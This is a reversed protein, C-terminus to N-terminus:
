CTVSENVVQFLFFLQMIMWIIFEQISLTINVAVNNVIQCQFFHYSQVSGPPSIFVNLKDSFVSLNADVDNMVM